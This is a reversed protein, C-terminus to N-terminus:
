GDLLVAMVEAVRKQRTPETKASNVRHAHGRKKGPTLSDWVGRAFDDEALAESLEPPVDVANPDDLGFRVTVMDGLSKGIKQQIRKSCMIYPAQDGGSPMIAAQIDMGDIEGRIRQRPNQATNLLAQLDRPLYVVHYQMRGFDYEDIPGTFHHPYFDMTPCM